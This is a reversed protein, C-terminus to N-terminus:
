SRHRQSALYTEIFNFLLDMESMAKFLGRSQMQTYTSNLSRMDFQNQCFFFHRCQKVERKLEDFIQQISEMHPKLDRTDESTDEMATPFVTRLYFELISDMAQCAFPTNFTDEVTQDLLVRDIDDNAEQSSFFFFPTLLRLLM